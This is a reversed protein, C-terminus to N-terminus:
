GISELSSTVTFLKNELVYCEKKTCEVFDYIDYGFRYGGKCYM